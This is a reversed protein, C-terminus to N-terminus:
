TLAKRLRYNLYPKQELNTVKASNPFLASSISNELIILGNDGIFFYPVNQNDNPLPDPDPLGLTGGEACKKLECDNYIQADSASGTGGVDAWIIKYDADVLAMLVISYFGKYNFYQSGSKPPCRCAVHKGDFVGCTHPFNWKQFFKDAIARWGDPTSPCVLVEDVYEDVIAQCVERVVISQTNHPVRWGFKMSAYKNGSALHRLTLALKMGPELPDRYFTYQKTIRPIVRALLEDFMEPPMRLFNTFSAHDENRLEVMLQDYMGFQRRRGIWPRM